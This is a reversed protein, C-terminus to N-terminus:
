TRVCNLFPLLGRNSEMPIVCFTHYVRRTYTHIYLVVATHHSSFSLQKPVYAIFWGNEKNGDVDRVGLEWHGHENKMRHISLYLNGPIHDCISQSLFVM